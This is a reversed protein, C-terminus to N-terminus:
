GAMYISAALMAEAVIAVLAMGGLLIVLDSRGLWDLRRRRARPEIADPAPDASPPAGYLAPAHRDFRTKFPAM